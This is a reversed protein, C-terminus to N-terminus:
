REISVLRVEVPVSLEDSGRKVQLVHNQGAQTLWDRLERLMFQAAPKDDVASIVDAKKFGDKEAPSGPRVAAVTFTHLDAGSALLTLGYTQREPFPKAAEARPKLIVRERAYDLFVHYRRYISEGVTGAFNPSAYAGKVNVSLNVPISDVTLTGLKLRDIRGRINNQAFFQNELGAPRNVAANTQALKLLDNARVFPSTLTVTEAAGFDLVLYAPIDRKTAVSITGDMFPIGMDFTIPVIAGSGAYKWTKPDHLTILKKEYDIEVVFRSIFDYGLLGGLPVGLARELGTEDITAVHQNRLEVGPLKFTAGQAYGYDASGGGGTTTTKAYTKLGFDALRTENIVNQDAGTDLLFGIPKSGNLSVNFVIHNSELTFPISAASADLHADSVGTKLHAFTSKPLGAKFQVSTRRWRYDPKDTESVLGRHPTLIGGEPRWDEYTTTIESDEGPRVSKLPLGSTADVSWTMPTGGPTTVRLVYVRGDEAQSVEAQAMLAPPGFVVVDNEFIATRLRRLEQGKVDRIWGNWDRRAATRGAVVIESQDFSRKTTRRYADGTTWEEITGRVGDEDSSSVLIAAKARNDAPAHVANRWRAVVEQATMAGNATTARAYPLATMFVTFLFLSIKSSTMRLMTVPRRVPDLIGM